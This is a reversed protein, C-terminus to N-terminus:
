YQYTLSFGVAPTATRFGQPKYLSWGSFVDYTLGSLGGRMGVSAGALKDGLLNQVSPGYVKGVDVGAYASQGSQGLPISLENRVFFGREAALTLEGDFGRVTYRNGISFQDALYLPSRTTQGRLTGVYTLSQDAVNFPAVLTADITQLTYRYTPDSPSRADADAQGNFWSIGWRNALTLDLQANGLYHTHVWALEAFTTDTRQVNIETDDIYAHNWRKGVKFQWSNKQSQNRQFLQTVKFELNRSKGSSVFDQNNGAIQEHYDYSSGSVAFNWYGLPIAYYINNGNTGRQGGKHEADSNIGINFLDNLGLPNDIALNLGAQLKGTARAGSDDISATLKWTKARKVTIAVDSEGPTEAPIIQMDVDQSPVRKMQELGQELDRLNLLQGPGTPFANRWTGYLAPDAFRIARIVGPVLVLKLTGSALDQEPIGIRTTSYGKMLILNTLRQVILNLGDKGICAGAYQRLYDQAFRFPDYPLASAGALQNAPSLQRPVDLAFQHLPFCPYETPLALTDPTEVPTTSQLEVNPAQLQRQRELAETQSRRRQEESDPTQATQAHVAPTTGTLLLIFGFRQVLALRNIRAGASAAPNNM